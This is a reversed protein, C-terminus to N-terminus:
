GHLSAAEIPSSSNTSGGGPTRTRRRFCAVVRDSPRYVGGDVRASYGGAERHLLVGAAHDWPWLRNYLSFHDKGDALQRFAFGACRYRDVRGFAAKKARIMDRYPRGYANSNILGTMKAITDGAAVRLIRGDLRAGAGIEAVATDGAVPDHIWAGCTEGDRVFALIIVFPSRGDAFNQTGDVPDIIWVPADGQFRDLVDPSRHVAEEGVVVSGPLHDRLLRALRREADLDAVTVLDGPNKEMVHHDALARFRPLIDLESVEYLFETVTAPDPTLRM